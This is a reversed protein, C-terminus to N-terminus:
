YRNGKSKPVPWAGAKGHRLKISRGETFASTGNIGKIVRAINGFPEGEVLKVPRGNFLETKVKAM